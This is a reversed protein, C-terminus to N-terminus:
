LVVTVTIKTENLKPKKNNLYNQSYELSFLIIFLKFFYKNM